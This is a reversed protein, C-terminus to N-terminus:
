VLYCAFEGNEFNLKCSYLKLNSRTATKRNDLSLFHDRLPFRRKLLCIAKVLINDEADRCVHQSIIEAIARTKLRTHFRTQEHSKIYHFFFLNPDIIRNKNISPFAAEIAITLFENLSNRCGNKLVWRWSSSFPQWTPYCLVTVSTVFTCSRTNSTTSQPVLFKFLHTIELVFAYKTSRCFFYNFFNFCRQTMNLSNFSSQPSIKTKRKYVLYKVSCGRIKLFYQIRM